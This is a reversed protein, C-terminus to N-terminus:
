RVRLAASYNVESYDSGIPKPLIAVQGKFYIKCTEIEYGSCM